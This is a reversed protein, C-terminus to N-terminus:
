IDRYIDVTVPPIDSFLSYQENDAPRREPQDKQMVKVAYPGSAAALM